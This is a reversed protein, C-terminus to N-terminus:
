SWLFPTISDLPNTYDVTCSSVEGKERLHMIVEDTAVNLKTNVNSLEHSRLSSRLFLLLHTSTQSVESRISARSWCQFSASSARGQRTERM